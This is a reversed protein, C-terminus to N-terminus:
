IPLTLVQRLAFVRFAGVQSLDSSTRREGDYKQRHYARQGYASSNNPAEPVTAALDLLSLVLHHMDVLFVM